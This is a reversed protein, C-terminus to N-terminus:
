PKAPAPDDVVIDIDITRKEQSLSTEPALEVTRGRNAYYGKVAALDAVLTSRVFTAGSKTRMSALVNQTASADLGSRTLRIKGVRFMPGETVDIHLPVSGDSARTGRDLKLNVSVYGHDYYFASMRLPADGLADEGLPEGSVLGSAGRLGAELAPTVGKMTITGIRSRKGEHIVMHVDIVGDGAPTTEPTVTAEEYGQSVYADRLARARDAAYRPDFHEGTHLPTRGPTPKLEVNVASAGDVVVKGVRPREHLRLTIAVGPGLKRAYVAADDVIGSRHIAELGERLAKEALVAGAEFGLASEVEKRAEGRVGEVCIVVVKRGFAEDESALEGAEDSCPTPAIGAGTKAPDVNVVNPGRPTGPAPRCSAVLVLAAVLTVGRPSSSRSSRM